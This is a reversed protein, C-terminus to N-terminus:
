RPAGAGRLDSASRRGVDQARSALVPGRELPFGACSAWAWSARCSRRRRGRPPPAPRPTGDRGGVHAPPPPARGRRCGQRRRLLGVLDDELDREPVPLGAPGAAPVADVLIHRRQDNAPPPGPRELDGARQGRLNRRAQREGPLCGPGVPDGEGRAHRAQAPGSPPRGPHEHARTRGRLSDRRITPTSCGCTSPRAWPSCMPCRWVSPPRGPSRRARRGAPSRRRLFAIAEATEGPDTASRCPRRYRAPRLRRTATSRRTAGAIWGLGGGKRM